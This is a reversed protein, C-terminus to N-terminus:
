PLIEEGGIPPVESLSAALSARAPGLVGRRSPGHLRAPPPPTWRNLRGKRCELIVPCFARALGLDHTVLVVPRDNRRSLEAFLAMVARANESDLSATPEDALIVEAKQAFARAIAVRQREGGSLARPKRHGKGELGVAGLQRRADTIAEGRVMGRLLLPLAVNEEATLHSILNYDQHLFAVRSRHTRVSQQDDYDVAHSNFFLEGSSPTDLAAAVQLFTSKGSGSPGVVATLGRRVKLSVGNLVPIKRGGDQFTKTVGRFEFLPPVAPDEELDIVEPEWWTSEPAALATRTRVRCKLAARAAVTLGFIVSAALFGAPTM